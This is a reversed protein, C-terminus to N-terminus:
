KTQPINVLNIPKMQSLLKDDTNRKRGKHKKILRAYGEYLQIAITIYTFITDFQFGGYKCAIISVAISIIINAM